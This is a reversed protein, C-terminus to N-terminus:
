IPQVEEFINNSSGDMDVEAQGKGVKQDDSKICKAHDLDKNRRERMKALKFIDRKRKNWSIIYAMM